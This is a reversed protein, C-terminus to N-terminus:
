ISDAITFKYRLPKSQQNREVSRGTSDLEHTNPNIQNSQKFLGLEISAVRKETRRQFMFIKPGLVIHIIMCVIWIGLSANYKKTTCQYYGPGQDKNPDIGTCIYYM